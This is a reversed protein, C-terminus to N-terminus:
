MSYKIANPNAKTMCLFNVKYPIKQANEIHSSAIVM